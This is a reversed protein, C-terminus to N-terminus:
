ERARLWPTLVWLLLFYMCVELSSAHLVLLQKLPDTRSLVWLELGVFCLPPLYAYGRHRKWSEYSLYLAGGGFLSAIFMEDVPLRMGKWWTGWLLGSALVTVVPASRVLSRIVFRDREQATM